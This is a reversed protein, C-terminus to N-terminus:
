TIPATLIMVSLNRRAQGEIERPISIEERTLGSREPKYLVWTNERRFRFPGAPIKRRGQKFCTLRIGSGHLEFRWVAITLPSSLHVVTKM